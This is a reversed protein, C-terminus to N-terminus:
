PMLRYAPSAFAEDLDPFAPYVRFAMWLPVHPPPSRFLLVDEGRADFTGVLSTALTTAHQQVEWFVAPDALSFAAVGAGVLWPVRSAGLWYVGNPAGSSRIRLVRWVGVDRVTEIAMPTSSRDHPDTGADLEHGSPVGDGDPDACRGAGRAFDLGTVDGYTVLGPLFSLAVGADSVDPFFRRVIGQGADVSWVAGAGDVAVVDGRPHAVSVWSRGARDGLELRQLRPRSLLLNGARDVAFDGSGVGIPIAAAVTGDMAHAWLEGSDPARAWVADGVPVLERVGRGTPHQSIVREAEYRVLRTLGPTEHVVWVVGDGTVALARGGAYPLAVDALERGAPDLRRLRSTGGVDMLLLAGGDGTMALGRVAGSGPDSFAVSGGLILSVRAPSAVWTRAVGDTAVFRVGPFGGHTAVGGLDADIIHVAGLFPNALVVLQASASAVLALFGLVVFTRM